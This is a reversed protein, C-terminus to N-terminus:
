ITVSEAHESPVDTSGDDDKLKLMSAEACCRFGLCRGRAEAIRGRRYTSRALEPGGVWSGGRESKRPENLDDNWADNERSKATHYFEPSYADRCWQWVNGAVHRLGFPSVGVCVNVPVLPLKFLPTAIDTQNVYVDMNWCVNLQEATPLADGWPYRALKSGRAAYEWQVETPLFCASSSKYDKWDKGHAWLSYANAGYWSVLIMPWSAPVGEKVSWTGFEDLFLPQHSSRPDDEPLLSWDLLIEKSPVTMNLFRAYAGISVPEVDILFSSVEVDHAPLEGPLATDDDESAGITVRASPISVVEMGDTSRYYRFEEQSREYELTVQRDEIPELLQTFPVKPSQNCCTWCTEPAIAVGMSSRLEDPHSLAKEPVGCGGCDANLCTGCLCAAMEAISPHDFMFRPKIGAEPFEESLERSSFAIFRSDCRALINDDPGFIDSDDDNFMQTQLGKKAQLDENPERRINRNLVRSVRSLTDNFRNSLSM